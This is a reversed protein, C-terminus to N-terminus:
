KSFPNATDKEVILYKRRNFSMYYILYLLGPLILVIQATGIWDPKAASSLKFVLPGAIGILMLIYLALFYKMGSSVQLFANENEQLDITLEESSCWDIKCSIKRSGPMVEFEQTTDNKLSGAHKDDIIVKYTRRRNMWEAKRRLVIKTTM